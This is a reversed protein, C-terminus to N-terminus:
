LRMLVKDHATLDDYIADLQARDQAIIVLSVSVYRGNRSSRTRLTDMRVTDCHREVIGIVLEHFHGDDIGMAKIEYDCPFEFGKQPQETM